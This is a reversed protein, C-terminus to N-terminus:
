RKVRGNGGNDSVPGCTLLRNVAKVFKTGIDIPPLGAWQRLENIEIGGAQLLLTYKQLEMDADHPVVQEIWVTLDSGSSRACGNKNPM